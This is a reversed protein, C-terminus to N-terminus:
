FSGDATVGYSYDVHDFTHLAASPRNKPGDRQHQLARPLWSRLDAPVPNRMSATVLAKGVEVDSFEKSLKGILARASPEKLGQEVLLPVGIDWINPTKPKEPEPAAPQDIQDDDTKQEASASADSGNPDTTNLETDTDTEKNTSRDNLPREVTTARDNTKQEVASSRESIAKKNEKSKARKRAEASAKGAASRQEQSEAIMALDSEIRKHAWTEGDDIFLESLTREVDTWRDNSLKAIRALRNKPIPKGTQWYNFILLLYAGHEETTLHATDALYDAVYLQMYPLAAM